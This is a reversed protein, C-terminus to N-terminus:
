TGASTAQKCIQQFSEPVQTRWKISKRMWQELKQIASPQQHFLSLMVDELDKYEETVRGDQPIWVIWVIGIWCELKEWAEDKRLSIMINPDHIYNRALLLRDSLLLEVLLEWNPHLLDRRNKHSSQITDLLIKAWQPMRNDIPLVSQIDEVCVHLDNLLKLFGWPGVEEFEKYPIHEIARIVLQRLRSGSAPAPFGILGKACIRLPYPDHSDSKSTWSLLLDSIAEWSEQTEYVIQWLKQHHQTHTLKAEIKGDQPDLHRFGIELCLLILINGDELKSYNECLVSCWEYAMTTLYIPHRDLKCLDHLTLLLFKCHPNPSRVASIVAKSVQSLVQELRDSAFTLVIAKTLLFLFYSM